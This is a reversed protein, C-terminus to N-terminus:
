CFVNRQSGTESVIEHPVAFSLHPKDAVTDPQFDIFEREDGGVKLLFQGFAHDQGEFGLEHKRSFPHHSHFIVVHDGRRSNFSEGECLLDQDFEFRSVARPLTRKGEKQM